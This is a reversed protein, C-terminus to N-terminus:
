QERVVAAAEAPGAVTVVEKAGVKRHVLLHPNRGPLFMPLAEVSLLLATAVMEPKLPPKANM